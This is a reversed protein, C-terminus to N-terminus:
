KTYLSSYRERNDETLNEKLMIFKILRIYKLKEIM